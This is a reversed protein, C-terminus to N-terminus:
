IKKSDKYHKICHCNACLLMLKSLDYNKKMFDRKSEKQSPDNHHLQLAAVNKFGCIECKGGKIKLVEAMRKRSYETAIWPKRRRYNRSQERRKEPNEKRWKKVRELYEEKKKQYNERMKQKYYERNQEYHKKKTAKKAEKSRM